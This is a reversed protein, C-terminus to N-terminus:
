TRKLRVRPAFDGPALMRAFRDPNVIAQDRMAANASEVLADGDLNELLEGLRRRTVALYLGMGERRFVDAATELHRIAQLRDDRLTRAGGLLLHSLGLAWPAGTRRIESADDEASRLLTDRTSGSVMADCAAALATRARLHRSEILVPQVRLLLTRALDLWKRTIGERAETGRGAYLQTEATAVMEYYHQNHFGTQSWREMGEQTGREAGQVDDAALSTLFCLRTRLITEAYLADRERAEKLLVPLRRSLEGIEGLYFLSLLTYFQATDIQWAVRTCQERLTRRADECLDLALSWNGQMYAASGKALTVLASAEPSAVRGALREAIAVITENRRQSKAGSISTYALEMALARVIRLPEGAKLALLLNRAGFEASRIHDVIALGTTVSWCTDVGVLEAPPIQKEDRETFHFGRLLIRARLTLLSVLARRPTAPLRLGARRLVDRVVALGEDLHGSQLLQESARRKLELVREAPATTAAELYAHAADHGRGSAALADGLKVRVAQGADDFRGFDLAFRYSRSAREFALADSARDGAVVAYNAAAQHQGAGHFHHVLTDADANPMRELAAALRGHLNKLEPGPIDGAIAERIRDHYVELKEEVGAIRSRALRATRLAISTGLAASGIGAIDGAVTLDLPGGFVALVELLRRASDGCSATRARIVSDLTLQSDLQDNRWAAAPFFSGAATTASFQLLQHIFLPSRGSEAVIADIPADAELRRALEVALEGAEEASLEDVRVTSVGCRNRGQAAHAMRLLSGLAANGAAEETRYSGVFLLPASDDEFLLEGLLVASDADTWQLDDIVLVLPHRAGIHALLQRFALSARRRLEQADGTRSSRHMLEMADVRRLAPFLRALAACDRPLGDLLDDDPLTRLYQTLHDVLSDLAKYPVSERESCRGELIVVDPQRTRLLDLFRRVLGSKGMGSAGHVFVTQLEGQVSAAFSRDIMAIEAQRGVFPGHGAHPALAQTPVGTAPWIQRLTGLIDADSPRLQPQRDLLQQCLANLRDPIDPVFSKPAPVTEAHDEDLVRSITSHFPRGGTLAEFLMVGVSYWDSAATPREGAAQEPSVYAPTGRITRSDDTLVQSTDTALGFDVLKVVGDATVLVNSPKVDCHLKGEAHLYALAHCLQTLAQGLRTMNCAPRPQDAAPEAATTRKAGGRVYTLFDVGPVLEMAILWAHDDGFLEYLSVLNPHILDALIRFERKFDYVSDIGPRTFAKLAVHTRRERDYAKYVVGFGGKGLQEEITFRGHEAIALPDPPEPQPPSVRETSQMWSDDGSGCAAAMDALLRLQELIRRQETTPAYADGEAWDIPSGDAVAGVVRQLYDDFAPSGSSPLHGTM